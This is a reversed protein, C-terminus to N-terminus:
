EWTRPWPRREAPRRITVRAAAASAVGDDALLPELELAAIEAHAAAAAAIAELSRELTTRAAGSPAGEPSGLAFGILEDADGEGLPCIRAARGAVDEGPPACRLVPGFLPDAEIAVRLGAGGSGDEPPRRREIGYCALFRERADQDLDTPEDTLARALIAAAEDVRAAPVVSPAVRHGEPRDGRPLSTALDLAEDLDAARRAGVQHFLGCGPSEAAAGAAVVVIPLRAGVRRSVRAFRRPDSFSEIQLLAVDTAPDAEWYELLDNATLDVRDGLSVFSSIGIGRRRIAELLERSAEAGQTAVGIRGPPPAGAGTLDLPPRSRNDLLGFSAPGLLRTGTARCSGLLEDSQSPTLASRVM